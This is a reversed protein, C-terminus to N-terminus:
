IPANDSVGKPREVVGRWWAGPMMSTDQGPACRLLYTLEWRMRWFRAEVVAAGDSSAESLTTTM